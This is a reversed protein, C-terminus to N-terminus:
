SPGARAFREGSGPREQDRQPRRPGGRAPREPAAQGTPLVLM